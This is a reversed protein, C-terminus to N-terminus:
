SRGRVEGRPNVKHGERPIVRQGRWHSKLLKCLFSWHGQGLISRQGRWRSQGENPIVESREVPISRGRSHRRGRGPISKGPSHVIVEESPNVKRPFSRHGQGPISRQGRWQSQGQSQGRVEGRPNVKGPFSKHGELPIM